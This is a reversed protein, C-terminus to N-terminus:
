AGIKWYQAVKDLTSKYSVYPILIDFLDPLNFTWSSVDKKLWKDIVKKDREKLLHEKVNPSSIWRVIDDYGINLPPELCHFQRSDSLSLPTENIVFMFLRTELNNQLLEKDLQFILPKWFKEVLAEVHSQEINRVKILTYRRKVYKALIAVLNNNVTDALVGNQNELINNITESLYNDNSNRSIQEWFYHLSWPKEYKSYQVEIENWVGYNVWRMLRCVLWKQLNQNCASLSFAIGLSNDRMIVSRFRKEQGLEQYDLNWMLEAFQQHESIRKSVDIIKPFPNYDVLYETAILGDSIMGIGPYKKKFLTLQPSSLNSYYYNFFIGWKNLSVGKPHNIQYIQNIIQKFTTNKDLDVKSFEIYPLQPITICNKRAESVLLELDHQGEPTLWYANGSGTQNSM